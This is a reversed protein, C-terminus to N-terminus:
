YGCYHQSAIKRPFSRGPEIPIASRLLWEEILQPTIDVKARFYLKCLDHSATFSLQYSFKSDKKIIQIKSVAITCVNFLILRALIEQYIYEAKKSKFHRLDVTYKLDRFATEIGWRLHYIEKIKDMPFKKPSLNTIIYEYNDKGIKIRLVRFRMDFSSSKDGVDLLDFRRDPRVYFSNTGPRKKCNRSLSISVTIDYTEDDPLTINSLIPRKQKGLDKVRLVFYKKSAVIHALVNYSVYGRDMVFVVNHGLPCRELMTIFAAREDHDREPEVVTDLFRKEGIHFLANVHVQNYFGNGSVYQLQTASEQSNKPINVASGDCAVLHYGEFKNLLPFRSNLQKLLFNFAALKIKSRQQVVASASPTPKNYFFSPIARRLSKSDSFILFSMLTSFSTKRLRSFDKGPNSSFADVDAEMFKLIKSFTNKVASFRNM